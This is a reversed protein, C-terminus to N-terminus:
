TVFCEAELKFINELENRSNQYLEFIQPDESAYSAELLEIQHLLLRTKANTEKKIRSSYKITEGRIELQIM